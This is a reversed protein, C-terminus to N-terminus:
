GLTVATEDIKLCVAEGSDGCIANLTVRPYGVSRRVFEAEQSCYV